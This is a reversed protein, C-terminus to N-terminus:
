ILTKIIIAVGVVIGSTAVLPVHRASKWWALSFVLCGVIIWAFARLPFVPIIALFFLGDGLGIMNAISIKRIRSWLWVGAAMYIIILANLGSRVAMERWGDAMVATGFACVALAALWAVGVERHRFDDAILKALPILMILSVFKM